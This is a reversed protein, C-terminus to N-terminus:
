PAIHFEITVERDTAFQVDFELRPSNGGPRANEALVPFTTVGGLARGFNALTKWAVSGDGANIARSYHPADIAIHGNTEVFTGSPAGPAPRVDAIPVTIVFGPGADTTITVRAEHAGAPVDPWHAGIELRTE